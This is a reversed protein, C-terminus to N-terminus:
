VYRWVTLQYPTKGGRPGTVVHEEHETTRRYGDLNASTLDVEALIMLHRPGGLLRVCPAHARYETV